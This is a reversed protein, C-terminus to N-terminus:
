AAGQEATEDSVPRPLSRLRLAETIQAETCGLWVCYLRLDEPDPRSRPQEWTYITQRSIRRESGNRGPLRFQAVVVRMPIAGRPSKKRYERLLEGLDM